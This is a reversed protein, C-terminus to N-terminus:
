FNNNGGLRNLMTSSPFFSGISFVKFGGTQPPIPEPTVKKKSISFNSIVEGLYVSSINARKDVDTFSTPWDPGPTSMETKGWAGNSYTLQIENSFVTSNILQGFADKAVLGVILNNQSDVFL